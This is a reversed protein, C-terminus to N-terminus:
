PTPTGITQKEDWCFPPGWPRKCGVLADNEKVNVLAIPASTVIPIAAKCNGVRWQHVDPTAKKTTVLSLPTADGRVVFEGDVRLAFVDGCRLDRGERSILEVAGTARDRTTLESTSRGPRLALFAHAHLSSLDYHEYSRVIEARGGRPSTIVWGASDPKAGASGALCVLAAIMSVHIRM